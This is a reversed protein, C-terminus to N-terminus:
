RASASAQNLLAMDESDLQLRIAAALSELQAVSTASFIPASVSPRAIIWALAVAAPTTGNRRAVEVLADIIRLGRTNFYKNVM